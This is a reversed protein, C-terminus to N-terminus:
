NDTSPERLELEKMKLQLSKRSIGLLQAAKTVNHATERLARAILQKEIKAKGERVAEKLPVLETEVAEPANEGGSAEMLRRVVEGTPGGDRIEQPLDSVGLVKADSMLAMREVANELERINGPWPYQSMLLVAADDFVPVPRTLRRGARKAAHRLLAPIDAARERLPLIKVPVVNLRYFLDERFLGESILPQLDKNTAAVLRVDVTLSRVGGVREFTGEQIARLLKVQIAIPIEGVEDLFLTGGNALEFRGPKSTVAGTFAGREHGFLESEVLEHPIAACNVRIFPQSTRDSHEHLARAVLEKGTGSEGTILVTAPTSAVREIVQFVELIATSNGIMGYRDPDDGFSPSRTEKQNLRYQAAAKAIVQKIETRDFPKTVFDFAGLKIAEVAGDVTAFATIIIVPIEPHEKQVNRLLTMGDVGPMRLDSVIVSVQERKLVEEAEAGDAASFTKYGSRRLLTVLVKRLNAEDDVVLVAPLSEPLEDPMFAFAEMKVTERRRM